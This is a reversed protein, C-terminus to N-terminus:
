MPVKVSVTGSIPLKRSWVVVFGQRAVTEQGRMPVLFVCPPLASLKRRASMALSAAQFALLVCGLASRLSARPVVRGMWTRGALAGSSESEAM